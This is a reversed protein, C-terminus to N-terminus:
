FSPLLPPFVTNHFGAFVTNHFLFFIYRFSKSLMPIGIMGVLIYLFPVFQWDSAATCLSIRSIFSLPVSLPITKLVAIEAFALLVFYTESLESLASISFFNRLYTFSASM